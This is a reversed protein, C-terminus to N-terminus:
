FLPKYLTDWANAGTFFNNYSTVKSVNWSRLDQNFVSAYSFMNSMSTVKSTDWAGIDQNFVSAMYFMESMDTVKSTDWAGINMNFRSAGYFMNNMNSVNRLDPADIATIQLNICGRFSSEMTAWSNIGWQSLDLIKEPTATQLFNIRDYKGTMTVTYTGPTSYNHVKNSDNWSSIINKQGDGWDVEFNYNGDAALPLAIQNPAVAGTTDTKWKTIFVGIQNQTYIKSILSIFPASLCNAETINLSTKKAVQSLNVNQIRGCYRKGMFPLPGEFSVTQFEYIGSPFEASHDADLKVLNTVSGNKANVFSGGQLPVGSAMASIKFKFNQKVPKNQSCSSLGLILFIILVNLVLKNMM